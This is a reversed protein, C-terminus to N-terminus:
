PLQARALHGGQPQTVCGMDTPLPDMLLDPAFSPEDVELHAGLFEQLFALDAETSSLEPTELVARHPAQLYQQM